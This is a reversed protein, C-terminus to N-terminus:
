VRNALWALAMLDQGLAMPATVASRVMISPSRPRQLAQVSCAPASLRVLRNSVVMLSMAVIAAPANATVAVIRIKRTLIDTGMMILGMRVNISALVALVVVIRVEEM